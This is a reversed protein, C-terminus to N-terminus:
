RVQIGDDDDDDDDDGGGDGKRVGCCYLGNELLVTEGVLV